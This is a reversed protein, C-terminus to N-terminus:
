KVGSCATPELEESAAATATVVASFSGAQVALVFVQLQDLSLRIVVERCGMTLFSSQENAGDYDLPSSKSCDAVQAGKLSFLLQV